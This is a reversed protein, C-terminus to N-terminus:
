TAHWHLSFTEKPLFQDGSHGSIIKHDVIWSIDLLWASDIAQGILHDDSIKSDILSSICCFIMCIQWIRHNTIWIPNRLLSSVTYTQNLTICAWEYLPLNIHIQLKYTDTFCIQNIDLHLISSFHNWFNRIFGTPM